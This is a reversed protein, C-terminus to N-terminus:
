AGTTSTSSRSSPSRGPSASPAPPRRAARFPVHRKFGQGIASEGMDKRVFEYGYEVMSTFKNSPVLTLRKSAALVVTLTIALCIIMWFIYQTLGFGGGGFVFAPDFSAQLHPIEEALTDLPNM